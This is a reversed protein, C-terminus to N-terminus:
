VGTARRCAAALRSRDANLRRCLGGEAQRLPSPANMAGHEVVSGRFKAGEILGAAWRSLRPEGHYARWRDCAEHGPDLDEISVMLQLEDGGEPDEEPVFMVLDEAALVAGPAPFVLRGSATDSVFRIRHAVEDAVVTAQRHARFHDLAPEGTPGPDPMAYNNAARFPRPASM